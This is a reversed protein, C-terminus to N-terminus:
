SIWQSEKGVIVCFSPVIGKLIDWLLETFDLNQRTAMILHELPSTNKDDENAEATPEGSLGLFLIIM